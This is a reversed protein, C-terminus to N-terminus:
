NALIEELYEHAVMIPILYNNVYGYMESEISHANVQTSFINDVDMSTKIFERLLSDYYVYILLLNKSNKKLKNEDYDIDYKDKSLKTFTYFSTMLKELVEAEVNNGERLLSKYKEGTISLTNRMSINMEYVRVEKGEKKLLKHLGITQSKIKEMLDTDPISSYIKALSNLHEQM